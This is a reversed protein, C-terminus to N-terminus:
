IVLQGSAYSCPLRVMCVCVRVCHVCAVCVVLPGRHRPSWFLRVRVPTARLVPDKYPHGKYTTVQVGQTDGGLEDTITDM